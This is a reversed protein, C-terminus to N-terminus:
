VTKKRQKPIESSNKHNKFSCYNYFEFTILLLLKKLMNSLYQSGYDNELSIVLIRELMAMQLRQRCSQAVDIDLITFIM